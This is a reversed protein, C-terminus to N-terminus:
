RGADAREARRLRRDWLSRYFPHMADALQQQAENLTRHRPRYEAFGNSAHVAQYWHSAWVGDSDRPGAPWHLMAGPLWEIDLYACLQELVGAPDRLVDGSDVVAPEAGSIRSIEEFLAAQRVIGIDEESVTPMKELYSGIVEVPDRVLFCHRLGKCWALDTGEPMHHTMHKQYQLPTRVPGYTIERIVTQRSDSQSELVAERCPHPLGTERLYCAYFPEDVVSCDPRNEWSRMMATSINRPGSWMAIRLTV